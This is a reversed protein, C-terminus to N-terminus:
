KLSSYFYERAYAPREEFFRRLDEMKEYWYSVTTEKVLEGNQYVNWRSLDEPIESELETQFQELLELGKSPEFYNEMLEEFRQIYYMRCQENELLARVMKACYSDLEYFDTYNDEYEYNISYDLDYVLVKWRSDASEDQLNRDRYFNCNNNTWDVNQLYLQVLIYDLFREVDLREEVFRYNEEVSLDNEEMYSVLELFDAEEETEAGKGLDAIKIEQLDKESIGTHKEFYQGDRNERVECLGYYEGNILLIAPQYAQNGLDLDYILSQALADRFKSRRGDNGFNRLRLSSFSTIVKGDKDKCDTGFIPYSFQDTEKEGWAYVAFSKMGSGRSINGCIRLTIKNEMVKKGSESFYELYGSIKRDSRYNADRNRPEPDITQANALYSTYREGPVCIGTKEDFLDAEEASLSIVPLSYNAGVLYTNTWVKESWTDEEPFYLRVKVVTAKYQPSPDYSYGDDGEWDYPSSWVSTYRNKEETRDSIEIEEGQYKLSKDTPISGDMTYYIEAKTEETLLELRLSQAYVGSEVSYVLEKTKKTKLYTQQTNAAGPSGEAFTVYTEGLMGYSTDFPIEPITLREIVKGSPDRLWLSEGMCNIKFDAHLEGADTVKDKGSAFVLLYEGPAIEVEPFEWWSDKNADDTLCYGALNQKEDGRNHIEIWDSYDGDSDTYSGNATVVESIYITDYPLTETNINIYVISILLILVSM